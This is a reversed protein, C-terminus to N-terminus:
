TVEGNLAKARTRAHLLAAFEDSQRQERREERLRLTDQRAKLLQSLSAIRFEAQLLHHKAQELQERTQAVVDSQLHIANQLRAMFQYHHRILETSLVRSTAGAWKADTDGAYSQLQALQNQAFSLTRHVQAVQKAVDDRRGTAVKIALVVGSLGPM